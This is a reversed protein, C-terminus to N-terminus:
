FLVRLVGKYGGIILEVFNVHSPVERTKTLAYKVRFLDLLYNVLARDYGSLREQNVIRRLLRAM